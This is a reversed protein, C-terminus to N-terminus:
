GDSSLFTKVIQRINDDDDAVYIRKRDEPM